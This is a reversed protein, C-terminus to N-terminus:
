PTGAATRVSRACDREVTAWDADFDVESAAAFPLSERLTDAVFRLLKTRGFREDICRTAYYAIGYKASVEWDEDGEAPRLTELDGKWGGERLLRRVDPRGPYSRLSRGQEEVYEAIGETLWWRQDLREAFRRGALTAAHALEHRLLAEPDNRAALNVVVDTRESSVPVAFGAV